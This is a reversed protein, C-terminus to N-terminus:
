ASARGTRRARTWRSAADAVARVQNELYAADGRNDITPWDTVAVTARSSVADRLEELRPVLISLEAASGRASVTPSPV